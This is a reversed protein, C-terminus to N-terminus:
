FDNYKFQYNEFNVKKGSIDRWIGSATNVPDLELSVNDIRIISELGEYLDKGVCYCYEGLFYVAGNEDAVIDFNEPSYLGLVYLKRGLDSAYDAAVSDADMGDSDFPNLFTRDRDKLRSDHLPNLTKIKLGGYNRIFERIFQPYDYQKMFADYQSTKEGEKWGMKYLHDKLEKSFSM